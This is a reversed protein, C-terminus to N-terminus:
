ISADLIKKQVEGVTDGTVAIDQESWYQMYHDRHVGNWKRTHPNYHFVWNYFIDQRSNREECMLKDPTREFDTYVQNTM